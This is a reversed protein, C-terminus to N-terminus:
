PNPIEGCSVYIGNDRSDHVNIIWQGTSLLPFTVGGV